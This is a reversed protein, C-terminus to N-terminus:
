NKFSRRKDGHTLLPEPICWHILPPVLERSNDFIEIEDNEQECEQFRSISRRVLNCYIPMFTIHNSSPHTKMPLLGYNTFLINFRM